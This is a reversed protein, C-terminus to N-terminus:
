ASKNVEIDQPHFVTFSGKLLLGFVFNLRVSEGQRHKPMQDKHVKAMEEETLTGTGIFCGSQQLSLIM